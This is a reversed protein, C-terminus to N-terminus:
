WLRAGIRLALAAGCDALDVGYRVGKGWLHAVFEDLDLRAQAQKNPSAASFAFVPEFTYDAAGDRIRPDRYLGRRATDFNAIGTAFPVMNGAGAIRALEPGVGFLLRMLVAYDLGTFYRGSQILRDVDALLVAGGSLPDAYVAGDRQVISGHAVGSPAPPALAFETSM